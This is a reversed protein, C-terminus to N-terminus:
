ILIVALALGATVGLTKYLKTNKRKEEEAEKIEKMLFNETIEIQSVQGEVDTNGLMKGLTKLVNIDDETFNTQRKKEEIAKEWAESANYNNMYQNACKFIEGINEKNEEYIEEFIDQLPTCTFKIKAKFVNLINKMKELENLRNSYKKSYLNGIIAFIFFALFILIYKIFIM